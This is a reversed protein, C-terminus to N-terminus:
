RVTFARQHRHPDQVEDQRRTQRTSFHKCLLQGHVLPAFAIEDAHRRKQGFVVVKRRQALLQGLAFDFAAKRAPAVAEGALQPV